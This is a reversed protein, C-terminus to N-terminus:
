LWVVPFAQSSPRTCFWLHYIFTHTPSKVDHESQTTQMVKIFETYFCKCFIQYIKLMKEKHKKTTFVRHRM